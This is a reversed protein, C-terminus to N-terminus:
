AAIMGLAMMLSPLSLLADNLRSLITDLVKSGVAAAIGLTVGILYALLTAIFSIGITTRAGYLIRSLTDRGLYDTGLLVINSPPLFDTDPYEDGGPVVFLEEDLIDAEHYPSITPGIAVIIAWFIIVVVGIKGALSLKIKRKPPADPLEEFQTTPSANQTIESM